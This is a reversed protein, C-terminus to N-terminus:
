ERDKEPDEVDMSNIFNRFVNLRENEVPDAPQGMGTGIESEAEQAVATTVIKGAQDAVHDEIFIPSQTRVALAIADSPRSDITVVKGNLNVDILAFFVNERLDNVVVREVVGGLEGIVNQLLDHTQPRPIDAGQLKLAIAQAVDPGIFIPFIRGGELEKLIVLHQETVVNIRVAEVITEVM